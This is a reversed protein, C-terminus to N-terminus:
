QLYVCNKKLENICQQINKFLISHFGMQTATIINEKRDDIFICEEPHMDLRNLISQYIKKDPKLIHEICSFVVVDFFPYSQEYFFQVAPPETNSLLGIRYGQKKLNSLLSFVDLHEHYAQQFIHKWVKEKPPTVGLESCIQKWFESETASGKQFAPIYKKYVQFLKNSPIQFYSSFFQIYDSTPDKILVGGWDSIIARIMSPLFM